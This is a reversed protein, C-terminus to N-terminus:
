KLIVITQFGYTVGDSWILKYSGEILGSLDIYALTTGLSVDQTRVLKGSMAVVQFRSATATPPVVAYAFGYKVPNPYVTLFKSRPASHFSIVQSYSSNGASDVIRIQYYNLGNKPDTDTFSYNHTATSNTAPPLSKISTFQVSDTSRQVEYFAISNDNRASWKLIVESGAMSGSFQLLEFLSVPPSTSGSHSTDKIYTFGALSDQWTSSTVKVQGTSGAGIVALITSDSTVIFSVAPTGGFSVATAAELNVGNITVTSGLGASTPSFSTIKYVPPPPPIFTFGPLSDTGNSSSVLVQGSSGTGVFAIIISDSIVTFSEAPTGGFSVATTTSLLKGQIVIATGTSGSSPSFSIIDLTPPPPPPPPPTFTFTGLSDSGIATTVTIKGSSGTGVTGVIVSDSQIIYTNAPSGGFLVAVAGTLHHGYIYVNTGSGGSTPTFSTISPPSPPVGFTFGSLSASGAPATVMVTGSTGAGVTATITSDSVVTFIAPTGGFSVATAGTFGYGSITVITGTTGLVPTFSTITVDQSGKNRFIRVTNDGNNSAALDPKGDGDFDAISLFS